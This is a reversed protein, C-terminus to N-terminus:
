IVKFHAGKTARLNSVRYEIERLTNQLMEPAVTEIVAVVVIM